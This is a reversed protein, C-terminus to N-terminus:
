GLDAIMNNEMVSAFMKILLIQFPHEQRACNKAAKLPVFQSTQPRRWAVVSPYPSTVYRCVVQYGVCELYQLINYVHM